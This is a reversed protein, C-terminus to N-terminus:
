KQFVLRRLNDFEPNGDNYGPRIDPSGFYDDGDFFGTHNYIDEDYMRTASLYVGVKNTDVPATDYQSREKKTDVDLIGSLTNAEVRVKNTLINNSGVSPTRTYYEETVGVLDSSQFGFM